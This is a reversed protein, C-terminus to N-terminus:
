AVLFLIAYYYLVPAAFLVGDVRDLIGGHGPLLTGSDKVNVARKLMSECLDGLQAVIALLIGLIICDRYTLLPLFTWTGIVIWKAIFSALVSALIGGIAGEITKKPSIVPALKHRGLSKGTYYAGTDGAWVVLLLYFVFEKGNSLGRLLVLHGFLWSVYVIGFMTIALAPIAEALSRKTLLAYLFLALLILTLTFESLTMSQWRSAILPVLSLLWGLLIGPLKYVPNRTEAFAYFEMLGIAIASSVLLWFLLPNGFAIILILFILGVISTLVRTAHLNKGEQHLIM